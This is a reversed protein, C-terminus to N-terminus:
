KRTKKYYYPLMLKLNEQTTDDRLKGLVDKLWTLPDIGVIDCSEILSYFIANDAAGVGNKSFLYNKRGIVSPRQNREMPNNDIRYRGDLVYRRWLKYAYDLAKGMNDSPTCQRSVEQMWAEMADMIPIVKAKRESAVEDYTAGRAQLNRRLPTSRNWGNSPREQWNPIVTGHTPLSGACMPWAVWYSLTKRNRSIIMCRM